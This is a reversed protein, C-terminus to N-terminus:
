RPGIAEPVKPLAKTPRAIKITPSIITFIIVASKLFTNLLTPKKFLALPVSKTDGITESILPINVIKTSIATNCCKPKVSTNSGNFVINSFNKPVIGFIM